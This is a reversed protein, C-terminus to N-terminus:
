CGAASCLVQHKWTSLVSPHTSTTQTVLQSPHSGSRYRIGTVLAKKYPIAVLFSEGDIGAKVHDLRRM